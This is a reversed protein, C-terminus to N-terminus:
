AFPDDYDTEPSTPEQSNSNESSKSKGRKKGRRKSTSEAQVEDTRSPDQYDGFPDSTFPDDSTFTGTASVASNDDEQSTAIAERQTSVLDSIIQGASSAALEMALNSEQVDLAEQSLPLLFAVVEAEVESAGVVLQEISSEPVGLVWQRNLTLEVLGFVPFVEKKTKQVGQPGVVVYGGRSVVGLPRNTSRLFTRMPSTSFQYGFVTFSPTSSSNEIAFGKDGPGPASAKPNLSVMGNADVVAEFRVREATPSLPAFRSLLYSFGLRVLGQIVLFIAILELAALIGRSADTPKETVVGNISATATQTKGNADTYMLELSLSTRDFTSVNPKITIECPKEEHEAIDCAQPDILGFAGNSEAIKTFAVSGNGADPGRCELSLTLKPTGKFRLEPGDYNYCVPFSAGNRVAVQFDTPAFKAAVTEEILSSDNDRVVTLGDIQGIPEVRVTVNSVQGLSQSKLVEAVKSADVTFSGDTDRVSEVTQETEGNIFSVMLKRISSVEDKSIVQFSMPVADNRNIELVGKTETPSVLEVEAAGVFSIYGTSGKTDAGRFSVYWDGVLSNTESRHVSILAKNGTVSTISVLDSPLPSPQGNTDLVTRRDKDPMVVEVLVAANPRSVLINFSQITGDAHFRFGECVMGGEPTCVDPPLPDGTGIPTDPVGPVNRLARFIAEVIKEADSATEFTGFPDTEGCKVVNVVNPNKKSSFGDSKYPKGGQAVMKMLGLERPEPNLGAAVIYVGDVRLQDVLGGVGCVQKEIQDSEAGNFGSANDDDHQGDSFWMLLRCSGEDAHGEFSKRAGELAVHYRTHLDNDNKAQADLASNIESLSDETLTTFPLRVQYKDGFGAVAVNVTLGADDGRNSSNKTASLSSNLVSVVSKLAAVRDDKQDNGPLKKGTKKEKLERLSKSEDVLMLVDLNREKSICAAFSDVKAPAEASVDSSLAFLPAVIALALLAIPKKM